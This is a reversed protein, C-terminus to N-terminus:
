QYREKKFMFVGSGALVCDARYWRTQLSTQKTLRKLIARYRLAANM